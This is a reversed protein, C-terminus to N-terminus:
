QILLLSLDINNCDITKIHTISIYPLTQDFNYKLMNIINDRITTESISTGWNNLILQYPNDSIKGEVYINCQDQSLYYINTTAVGLLVCAGALALILLFQKNM